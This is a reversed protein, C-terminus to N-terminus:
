IAFRSPETHQCPRREGAVAIAAERSEVAQVAAGDRILRVRM